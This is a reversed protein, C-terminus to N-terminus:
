ETDEAELPALAIKMRERINRWDADSLRGLLSIVDMQLVTSIYARFASPRWLGAAQWDQLVYDTPGTASAIQSTILGVIMDPRHAHYIESSLIVVPRRKTGQAGPFDLLVLDGASPM